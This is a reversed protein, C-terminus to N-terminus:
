RERNKNSLRNVKVKLGEAQKSWYARVELMFAKTSNISGREVGARIPVGLGAWCEYCVNCHSRGMQARRDCRPCARGGCLLCTVKHKKCSYYNCFKCVVKGYGRDHCKRCVRATCNKAWCKIFGKIHGVVGCEACRYQHFGKRWTALSKYAGEANYSKMIPEFLSFADGYRGEAFNEWVQNNVEGLCLRYNRIHPHCLSYEAVDRTHTAWVPKIPYASVYVEEYNIDCQLEQHLGVIFYGFRRSRLTVPGIKVALRWSEKIYPDKENLWLEGKYRNYLGILEKKSYDYRQKKGSVLTIYHRNTYLNQARQHLHAFLRDLQTLVKFNPGRAGKGTAANIIEEITGKELGASAPVINRLHQEGGLLQLITAVEGQKLKSSVFLNQRIFAMFKKDLMDRNEHSLRAYLSPRKRVGPAVKEQPPKVEDNREPVRKKANHQKLDKRDIRVARVACKKKM